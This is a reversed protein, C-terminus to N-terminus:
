SATAICHHMECHLRNRRESHYASSTSNSGSVTKIFIQMTEESESSSSSLSSISSTRRM